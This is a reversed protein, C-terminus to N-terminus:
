PNAAPTSLTNNADQRLCHWAKTWVENWEAFGAGDRMAKANDIQHAAHHQIAVLDKVSVDENNMMREILENM